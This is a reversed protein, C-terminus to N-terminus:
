LKGTKQLLKLVKGDSGNECVKIRMDGNIVCTDKGARCLVCKKELQDM